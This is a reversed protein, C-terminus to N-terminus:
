FRTDPKDTGPEFARTAVLAKLDGRMFRAQTIHRVKAALRGHYKGVAFGEAALRRTVDDCRKITSVYVIGSGAVRRLTHLLREQRRTEGPADQGSYPLDSRLGCLDLVAPERLGLRLVIDDIAADTAAASLALVPPRDLTAAAAGLARFARRFDDAWPTVRHADDVVVLDIPVARLPEPFAAGGIKWRRTFS